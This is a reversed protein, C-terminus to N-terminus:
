FIEVGFGFGVVGVLFLVKFMEAIGFLGFASCLDSSPLLALGGFSTLLL